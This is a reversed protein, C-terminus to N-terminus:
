FKTLLKLFTNLHGQTMYLMQFLYTLTKSKYVFNQCISQSELLWDEFNLNKLEDLDEKKFEEMIEKATKEIYDSDEIGMPRSIKNNVRDLIDDYLKHLNKINKSFIIKFLNGGEDGEKFKNDDFLSVAHLPQHVDGVVHILYRAM